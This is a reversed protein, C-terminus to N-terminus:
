LIFFGPPFPMHARRMTTVDDVSPTPPGYGSSLGFLIFAYIEAPSGIGLSIMYNAGGTVYYPTIGEALTPAAAKRRRYVYYGVGGAVAAVALGLLLYVWLEM